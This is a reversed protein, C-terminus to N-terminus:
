RMGPLADELQSQCKAAAQGTLAARSCDQFQQIESFFLASALILLAVISSVVLGSITGYLLGRSQKIRIARILVVVGVILSAVVLIVSLWLYNVDLQFVFLAGLVTLLFIRFLSRTKLFAAQDAESLQLKDQRSDAPGPTPNM